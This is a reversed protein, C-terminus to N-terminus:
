PHRRHNRILPRRYHAELRSMGVRVGFAVHGIGLDIRDLFHGIEESRHPGVFQVRRGHLGRFIHNRLREVQQTLPALTRACPAAMIFGRYLHLLPEAMFLEIGDIRMRGASMPAAGAPAASLPLNRSVRSCDISGAWPACPAAAVCTAWNSLPFPPSRCLAM